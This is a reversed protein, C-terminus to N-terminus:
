PKRAGEVAQRVMEGLVADEGMRGV